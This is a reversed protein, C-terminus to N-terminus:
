AIGGRAQAGSECEGSRRLALRCLAPGVLEMMAAAFLPLTLASRGVEPYLSALEYAMFVATASLPQIGVGVLLRKPLPLSGGSWAVAGAKAVARVLLLGLAQLGALWTFEQWPLSAGVIVFLVIALLWHGEPLATYRLTQQRDRSALLVGMLFLTLFVPVALMRAIGVALLACAVLVFVQALSRKPLIHAINLALWSGIGGVLLAGAVVWLPHVVANLWDESLEAHVVGLVLAFAVFSAASSIATHLIIRETVQGQARAEEITLLVVAPASAMTVAATAAAWAPTLGVLWLAFAFILAFSLAIDAFTSRLLEPNHRLWSLDLRRGVEMMLLGLAADAIPRAQALAEISIWGLSSPGFLIGALVYGIVRPWRAHAHLWEGILLGVVLLLSFLALSDIREPFPPLFFLRDLLAEWLWRPLGVLSDLMSPSNNGM